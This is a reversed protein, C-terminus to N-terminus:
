QVIKLGRKGALASRNLVQTGGLTLRKLRPLGRLPTLDLAIPCGAVSISELKSLNALPSLDSIELGSLSLIRLQKLGALPSLDTVDSYSLYLSWLDELKALPTLDNISTGMVSLSTLHPMKALPALTSIATDDLYITRLNTMGALLSLDDFNSDDVFLSDLATFQRLPLWDVLNAERLDFLDAHGSLATPDRQLRAWLRRCGEENAVFAALAHSVPALIESRESRLYAFVQDEAAARWAEPLQLGAHASLRALLEVSASNVPQGTKGKRRPAAPVQSLGVGFVADCLAPLMRPSWDPLEFFTVLTERWARMGALQGLQSVLSAYAPPDVVPLERMGAQMHLAAFYEQISLHSFAYLEEGRPIFLGSRRAIADVFGRVFPADADVGSDKMAQALWVMVDAEAVLLDRGDEAQGSAAAEPTDIAGRRLQMQWGLAALWSKKQEFSYRSDALGYRLEISELYAKTIAEYLRARGDPLTNSIGFVQAAMVLLNPTRAIQLAAPDRLIGEVFQRQLDEARRQVSEGHAFWSAAFKRIRANDFPLVCLRKPMPTFKLKAAPLMASDISISLTRGVRAPRTHEVELVERAFNRIGRLPLDVPCEDYGVSRSTIVFRAEPWRQMADRLSDRVPERLHGALEDLGDVLFLLQAGDGTLLYQLAEGLDPQLMSPSTLLASGLWAKLLDDFDLPTRLPLDRLLLPVPLVVDCWTPLPETLGACLRWTLWAVLTSKGSGPDGLVVLRPHQDLWQFIDAADANTPEAADPAVATASLAPPVFITRMPLAPPPNFFRGAGELRLPRLEGFWARMQQDYRRRLDRPLAASPPPPSSLPQKTAAAKSSRSTRPRSPVEVGARAKVTIGSTATAPKRSAM